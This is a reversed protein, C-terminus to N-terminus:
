SRTLSPTPRFRFATRNFQSRIAVPDFPEDGEKFIIVVIDNGFHRKREVQQEDKPYFPILTSVHMMIECSNHIEYYSFEGTTNAVGRTLM